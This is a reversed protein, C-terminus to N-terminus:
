RGASVEEDVAIVAPERTVVAAAVQPECSLLDFTTQHWAQGWVDMIRSEAEHSNGDGGAIGALIAALAPDDTPVPGRGAKAAATGAAAAAILNVELTVNPSSM